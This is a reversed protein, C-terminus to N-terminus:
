PFTAQSVKESTAHKHPHLNRDQVSGTKDRQINVGLVECEIEQDNADPSGTDGAKPFFSERAKGLLHPAWANLCLFEASETSALWHCANAMAVSDERSSAVRPNAVGNGTQRSRSNFNKRVESRLKRWSGNKDPVNLPVKARFRNEIFSKIASALVCQQQNTPSSAMRPTETSAHM